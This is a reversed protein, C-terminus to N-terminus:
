AGTCTRDDLFRAPGHACDALQCGDIVLDTIDARGDRAQDEDQVLIKILKPPGPEDSLQGATVDDCGSASLIGGVSVLLFPLLQRRM